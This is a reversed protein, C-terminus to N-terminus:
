FGVVPGWVSQAAGALSGVCNGGRIPPCCINFLEAVHLCNFSSNKSLVKLPDRILYDLSIQAYSNPSKPESQIARGLYEARQSM